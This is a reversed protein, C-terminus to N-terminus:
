SALVETPAGGKAPWERKRADEIAEERKRAHEIADRKAVESLLQLIPAVYKHPVEGLLAGLRNIDDQTLTM